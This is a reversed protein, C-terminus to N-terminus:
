PIDIQGFQLLLAALTDWNEETMWMQPQGDHGELLAQELEFRRLVKARTLDADKGYKVTIDAAEDPHEQRFKLAQQIAHVYRVIKGPNEQVTKKTFVSVDSYESWGLKEFELAAWNRHGQEELFRPQNPIWAAYFDVVGAVLPDSTYGVRKVQVKDRPIGFKKCVFDVYYDYGPQIGVTKGIVDEPKLQRTSKQDLPVSADLMIWSYPTGKLLTAVAVIDAGTPSTALRTIASGPAEVGVDVSGGILLTLPDKGPGGPIMEADLGMEAFYGKEQAIFWLACEDNLVWPLGIRFKEPIAPVSPRGAQAQRLFENTFYGSAPRKEKVLALCTEFSREPPVVAVPPKGCGVWLGILTLILGLRFFM